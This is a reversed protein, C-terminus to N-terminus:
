RGMGQLLTDFRARRAAWAALPAVATTFGASARTVLVGAASAAGVDVNRIDMACRLFVSLEPLAAFLAASGPTQRDSVIAHCGRM